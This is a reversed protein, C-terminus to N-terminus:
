VAFRPHVLAIHGGVIGVAVEIEPVAIFIIVIAVELIVGYVRGVDDGLLSLMPEDIARPMTSEGGNLEIWLRSLCKQLLAIGPTRLVLGGIALTHEGAIVIITPLAALSGLHDIM